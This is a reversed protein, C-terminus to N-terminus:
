AASSRRPLPACCVNTRRRQCRVPDDDGASAGPVAGAPRRRDVRIRLRARRTGPPAGVGRGACPRRRDPRETQGASGELLLVDQARRGSWRHRGRHRRWRPLERRRVAGRVGSRAHVRCRQRGRRRAPQVLVRHDGRADGYSAIVRDIAAALAVEGCVGAVSLFRGAQSSEATDEAVASSRVIMAGSSSRSEALRSLVASRDARWEAVSFHVLPLVRGRTLRSALWKLTEGKTAIM